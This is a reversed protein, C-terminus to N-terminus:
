CFGLDVASCHPSLDKLLLDRQLLSRSHGSFPLFSSFRHSSILDLLIPRAEEDSGILDLLVAKRQHSNLDRSQLHEGFAVGIERLTAM